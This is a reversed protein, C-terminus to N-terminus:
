ATAARRRRRRWAVGGAVVAAGAVPLLVTVPSEPLQPSPETGDYPTGGAYDSAVTTAVSSIISAQPTIIGLERNDDLSTESFNESGLFVQQDALGADVLIVKAHIYLNDNPNYTVVKVGYHELETWNDDYDSDYTMVVEVSVGREAADILSNIIGQDAMEENEVVVTTTAANILGEMASRANTPSWVLDDGTPPTIATHTFDDDFTTVIASVDSQDSDIVAFDRSTAYYQTQLNLTMIAATTDDVVITKQHTHTYSPNSWVVQVGNARLYNYAPTNNSKELSSGDLIVRVTVGRAADAALLQEATTDQLAYMTMDLSTTASSILNYIPQIGQDPETVLQLPTTTGAAGATPALLGVGGLAVGGVLAVTTAVRGV